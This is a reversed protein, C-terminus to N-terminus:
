LPQSLWLKISSHNYQIAYHVFAQFIILKEPKSILDFLFQQHSYCYGQGQSNLSFRSGSTALSITTFVRLTIQKVELVSVHKQPPMFIPKTSEHWSENHSYERAIEPEERHDKGLTLAMRSVRRFAFRQDLSTSSDNSDM